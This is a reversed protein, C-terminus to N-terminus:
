FVKKCDHCTVTITSNTPDNQATCNESRCSPCFLPIKGLLWWTGVLVLAGLAIIGAISAGDSILIATVM